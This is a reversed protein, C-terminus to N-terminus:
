GPPHLTGSHEVAALGCIYDRDSAERPINLGENGFWPILVMM